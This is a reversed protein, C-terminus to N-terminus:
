GKRQESIKLKFELFAIKSELRQIQTTKRHGRQYERKYDRVCDKCTNVKHRTNDSYMGVPLVRGCKICVRTESML